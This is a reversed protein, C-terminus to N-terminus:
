LGLLDREAQSLKAIANERMRAEDLGLILQSKIVQTEVPTLAIEYIGLVGENAVKTNCLGLGSHIMHPPHIMGDSMLSNKTFDSGQIETQAKELSDFVHAGSFHNAWYPYGGSHSDFGLFRQEAGNATVAIVYKAM